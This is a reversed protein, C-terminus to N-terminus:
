GADHSCMCYRLAPHPASPLAAIRTSASSTIGCAVSLPRMDPHTNCDCGDMNQGWHWASYRGWTRRQESQSTGRTSCTGKPAFIFHSSLSVAYPQLPARKLSASHRSRLPAVSIDCLNVLPFFSAYFCLLVIKGHFLRQLNADAVAREGYRHARGPM